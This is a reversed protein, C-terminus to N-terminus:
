LDCVRRYQALEEKVEQVLLAHEEAEIRLERRSGAYEEALNQSIDAYGIGAEFCLWDAVKVAHLLRNYQANGPKGAVPRHHHGLLRQLEPALGWCRGIVSGIEEHTSGFHRREEEILSTGNLVHAQVADAFGHDFLMAHEAVIGLNHILGALFPAASREDGFKTQIIRRTAIATGLSHTWLRDTSYPGVLLEQEFLRRLSLACALEATGRFGISVVATRLTASNGAPNQSFYPANAMRLLRTGHGKDLAFYAAYDEPCATEDGCLLQMGNLVDPIRVTGARALRESLTRGIKGAKIRNYVPRAAKLNSIFQWM